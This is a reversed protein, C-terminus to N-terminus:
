DFLWVLLEGEGAAVVSGTGRASDAAELVVGDIRWTGWGVFAHWRAADASAAGHWVDFRGGDVTIPPPGLLVSTTETASVLTMQVLRLPEAVSANVECHRIGSGSSQVLAQGPEVVRVRGAGDEHRLQGSLVWSVIDVGRHSHWGFGAGPALLHEDVGVIPGFSVNDPDYHAGASFCHWSTIGDHESRSREASRVIRTM